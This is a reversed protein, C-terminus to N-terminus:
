LGNKENLFVMCIPKQMLISPCHLSARNSTTDFHCTINFVSKCTTEPGWSLRASIVAFVKSKCTFQLFSFWKRVWTGMLRRYCNKKNPITRIGAVHSEQFCKQVCRDVSLLNREPLNILCRKLCYLM